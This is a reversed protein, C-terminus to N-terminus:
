YFKYLPVILCCHCHPQVHHDAEPLILQSDTYDEVAKAVLLPKTDIVEEILENQRKFAPNRSALM